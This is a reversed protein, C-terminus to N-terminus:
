MGQYEKHDRQVPIRDALTKFCKPTSKSKLSLGYKVIAMGFKTFGQELKGHYSEVILRDMEAM